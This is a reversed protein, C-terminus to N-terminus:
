IGCLNNAYVIGTQSKDVNAQTIAADDGKSADIAVFAKRKRGRGSVSPVTREDILLAQQLGIIVEDQERPKLAYFKRSYQNLERRTMGRDGRRRILDLVHQKIAGFESEHLRHKLNQILHQSSHSIYEIAWKAAPGSITFPGPRASILMSLRMAKEVDRGVAAEMGHEELEDMWTLVAQEHDRFLATAEADILVRYPTPEIDSAEHGALNGGIGPNAIQQLWEALHEPMDTKEPYQGPQRGIPSEVVVFRPLFGDQIWAMSLSDYFTSPTTMGLLTISPNYVVAEMEAAQTKSLGLTSYNAPRMEGDCRGWVEMLATLADLRHQNSKSQASGFAKGMEDIVTAHAPRRKLQSFVAASSTYGSGSIRDACGAAKLMAEVVWKAHEKGAGSQAMNLFYLAPWNGMTTRYRRGMIASMGALIANVTLHPQPRHACSMAWDFLEGLKGPLEFLKAGAEEVPPKWVPVDEQPKEIGTVGGALPNVWGKTAAIYFVSEKNKGGDPTFSRWKYAMELPNYKAGRRSWEDWIEFAEEGADTSKLAMGIEAWQHYDEDPNIYTLADRLEAATKPDLFATGTGTYDGGDHQAITRKVRDILWQPADALVAGEFPNSSAEWQYSGRLGVSPPAIVYGGDGRVDIGDGLSNSRSKIGNVGEPYRFYIHRGGIGGTLAEMTEPLKGYQRELEALTAEGDKGNHYVRNDVDVVFVGSVKGTRIGINSDPMQSFWSNIKVPDTTADNLGSATRPHKGQRDCTPSGCTCFGKDTISHVPFVHLGAAAYALAMDLASDGAARLNTIKM